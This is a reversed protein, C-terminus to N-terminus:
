RWHDLLYYTPHINRYLDNTTEYNYNTNIILPM